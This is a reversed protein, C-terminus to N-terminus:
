ISLLSVSDIKVLYEGILNEVSHNPSHEINRIAYLKKKIIMNKVLAIRLNEKRTKWITLINFSIFMNCVNQQKRNFFINDFYLFIINSTPKFDCVYLLVRLLWNFTDKVSKCQYFMHLPTQEIADTCKDCLRSSILNMLFSRNNIALCM